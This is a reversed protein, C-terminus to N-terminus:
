KIKNYEKKIEIINYILMIILILIFYYHGKTLIKNEYMIPTAIAFLLACFLAGTYASEFILHKIKSKIVQKEM